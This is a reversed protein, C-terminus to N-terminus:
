ADNFSYISNGCETGNKFYRLHVVQSDRQIEMFIGLSYGCVHEPHGNEFNWIGDNPPQTMVLLRMIDAAKERAPRSSKKAEVAILNDYPAPINGRSHVILDATITLVKMEENIITKVKGGQKRNYEADAYYGKIGETELQREMYHALRACISRESVDSLLLDKESELFATLADNFIHEPQRMRESLSATALIIMQLYFCACKVTLYARQVFNLQRSDQVGEDM